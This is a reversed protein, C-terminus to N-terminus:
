LKVHPNSTGLFLCSLQFIIPAHLPIYCTPYTFAFHPRPSPNTHAIPALHELWLVISVPSSSCVYVNCSVRHIEVWSLICLFAISPDSERAIVKINAELLVEKLERYQWEMTQLGNGNINPKHQNLYELGQGLQGLVHELQNILDAQHCGMGVGSFEECISARMETFDGDWLRNWESWAFLLYSKLVEIDELRRVAEVVHLSTGFHRGLCVPPLSPRKKLWSWTNVPIHPLLEREFAIQLLTDVVSQAVEETYPVMSTVAAWQQVLDGRDTLWGWPIHPAVLVIAQPTAKSLLSTAFQKIHHWGFWLKKSARIAHLLIDLMEPQGSLEQWTAYPLLTIIAKHKSYLEDPTEAEAM